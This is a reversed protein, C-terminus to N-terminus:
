VQQATAVVDWSTASVNYICGIYLSKGAVTTTPLTVGVARFGKTGSTWTLGVAGASALRFILKQGDTPTGADLPFTLSGTLATFAYEDYNDSNIWSGSTTGDVLIRPTIRKNTLTQTDSIGVL